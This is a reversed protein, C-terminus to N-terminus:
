EFRGNYARALQDSLNTLRDPFRQLGTPPSLVRNNVCLFSSCNEHSTVTLSKNLKALLLRSDGSQEIPTVKNLGLGAFEKGGAGGPENPNKQACCSIPALNLNPGSGFAQPPPSARARAAADRWSVELWDSSAKARRRTAITGTQETHQSGCRRRRRGVVGPAACSVVLLSGALLVASWRGIVVQPGGGHGSSCGGCAGGGGGGGGCASMLCLADIPRGLIVNAHGRSSERRGRQVCDIQAQLVITPGEGAGGDFGGGPSLAWSRLVSMLAAAPARTCLSTRM